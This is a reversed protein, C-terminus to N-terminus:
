DRTPKGPPPHVPLFLSLQHFKRFVRLRSGTLTFYVPKSSDSVEYGVGGREDIQIKEFQSVRLLRITTWETRKSLSHAEACTPEFGVEEAYTVIRVYVM